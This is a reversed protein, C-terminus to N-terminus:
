RTVSSRNRRAEACAADYLTLLQSFTRGWGFGAACVHTRAAAGLAARQSAVALINAAMAAADAVPGLRGWAPQVRERLAGADVGVVPLGSAEAEVVALGFTEHPGATVYVDASALVTAYAAEDREYPLIHLRPLAAARTQLEERLPGEGMLALHFRPTPPLRAFAEVLVRVAKETDLRGCYILLLDEAAVGLRARVEPSRHQPAFRELDVGLPVVATGEVGYEAIRAAQVRSAALTLDCRRFVKGFTMEAGTELAESVKEGWQALTESLEELGGSLLRRLPAGVYAHAVDTHFYASVLCAEGAARRHERHRFAAWPAVFFSGLEVIDPRAQMLAQQIPAVRWFARYPRAGPIFPSAIEIKTLRGDRTVRDEDGPVILVHEHDTAEAIFRRKHDIYTRIGGSCETYAFTLDCLRM